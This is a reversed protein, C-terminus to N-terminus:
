RGKVNGDKKTQNLRHAATLLAWIDKLIQFACSQVMLATLATSMKGQETHNLMSM